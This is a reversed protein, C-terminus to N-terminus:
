LECTISIVHGYSLQIRFWWREVIDAECTFKESISELFTLLDKVNTATCAPQIEAPLSHYIKCRLAAMSTPDEENIEQLVMQTRVQNVFTIGTQSTYNEFKMLRVRDEARRQTERREGVQFIANALREISDLNEPQPQMQPMIVYPMAPPYGPAFM